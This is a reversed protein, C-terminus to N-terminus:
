VPPVHSGDIAPPAKRPWAAIPQSLPLTYGCQLQCLACHYFVMSLAANLSAEVLAGCGACHDPGRSSMPTQPSAFM